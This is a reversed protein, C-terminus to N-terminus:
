RWRLLLFVTHVRARMAETAAATSSSRRTHISASAVAMGIQAKLLLRGPRHGFEQIVILLLLADLDTRLEDFRDLVVREGHQVRNHSHVLHHHIVMRRLAFFLGLLPNLLSLWAWYLGLDLRASGFLHQEGEKVALAEDICMNDRLSEVTLAAYM